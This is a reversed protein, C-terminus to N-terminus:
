PLAHHRIFDVIVGVANDRLLTIRDAQRTQIGAFIEANASKVKVVPYQHLPARILFNNGNWKTASVERVLVFEPYLLLLYQSHLNTKIASKIGLIIHRRVIGGECLEVVLTLVLQSTIGIEVGEDRCFPLSHADEELILMQVVTQKAIALIEGNCAIREIRTHKLHTDRPTEIILTNYHVAYAARLVFM